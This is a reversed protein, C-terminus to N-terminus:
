FLAEMEKLKDLSHEPDGALNVQNKKPKVGIM